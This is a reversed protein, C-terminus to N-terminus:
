RALIGAKTRPLSCSCCLPCAPTAFRKTGNSRSEGAEYFSHVSSVTHDYERQDMVGLHLLGENIRGANKYAELDGLVIIVASATKVKYQRQAAEYVREKTEPDTVVVYHAHQLNFASPAFKVLSM